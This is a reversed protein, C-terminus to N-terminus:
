GERGKQRAKGDIAAAARVVHLRLVRNVYSSLSRDERRALYGLNEKVDSDLRISMPELKRRTM